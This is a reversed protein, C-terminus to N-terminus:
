VCQNTIGDHNFTFLSWAVTTHCSDCEASTQMHDPTKGDALMGNHCSSCSGLVQTHDVEWLTTWTTTTHCSDCQDTTAIHLTPKGSAAFMGSGDHCASCERPTGEFNGRVHCSACAVSAHAGDLDFGYQFHDYDQVQAVALQGALLAGLLLVTRILRTM